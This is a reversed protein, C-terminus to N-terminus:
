ERPGKLFALCQQIQSLPSRPRSEAGPRLQAASPCRRPPSRPEVPAPTEGSCSATHQRLLKQQPNPKTTRRPRVGHLGPPGQGAQDPTPGASVGPRSWYVRYPQQQRSGSPDSVCIHILFPCTKAMTQPSLGKSRM